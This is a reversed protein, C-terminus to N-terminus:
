NTTYITTDIIYPWLFMLKKEKNQPKVGNQTM